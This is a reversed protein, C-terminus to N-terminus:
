FASFAGDITTKSLGQELLRAQVTRLLDRRLEGLPLDGQDPLHPLIYRRVREENTKVTREWGPYRQPYIEMFERVTHGSSPTLQPRRHEENLREVLRAANIVADTKRRYIDGRRRKGDLDVYRIQWCGDRMREPALARATEPEKPRGRRERIPERAM